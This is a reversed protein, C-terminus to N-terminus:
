IQPSSASTYKFSRRCGRKRSQKDHTNPLAQQHRPSAPQLLLNLKVCKLSMSEHKPACKLLLSISHPTFNSSLFILHPLLLPSHKFNTFYVTLSPFRPFFIQMSGVSLAFRFCLPSTSITFISASERNRRSMFRYICFKCSAFLSLAPLFPHQM